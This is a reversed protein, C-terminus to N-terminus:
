AHTLRYRHVNPYYRICRFGYRKYQRDYRHACFEGARLCKEAGGIVAHKYGASCTKAVITPSFHAPAASAASGAAISLVAALTAVFLRKRM